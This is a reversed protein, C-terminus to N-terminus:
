GILRLLVGRTKVADRHTMIDTEKLDILSKKDGREFGENKTHLDIIWHVRSSGKQARPEAM